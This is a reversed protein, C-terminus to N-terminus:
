SQPANDISQMKLGVQSDFKSFLFYILIADICLELVSTPAGLIGLYLFEVFQFFAALAFIVLATFRALKHRVWLGLGVLLLDLGILWSVLGVTSGGLNALNGIYFPIGPVWGVVSVLTQTAQTSSTPDIIMLYLGGVILVVGFTIVLEAILDTILTSNSLSKRLPSFYNEVEQLM